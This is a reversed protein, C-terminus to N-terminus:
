NPQGCIRPPQLVNQSYLMTIFGNFALAGIAYFAIPAKNQNILFLQPTSYTDCDRMGELFDGFLFFTSFSFYYKEFISLNKFITKTNRRRYLSFGIQEM